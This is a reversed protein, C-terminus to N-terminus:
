AEKLMEIVLEFAAIKGKHWDAMESDISCLMKPNRAFREGHKREHDAVREENHEIRIKLNAILEKKNM